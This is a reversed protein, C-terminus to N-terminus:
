LKPLMCTLIKLRLYEEDTLGYARRQIVRIKNNLGEVFGLPVDTLQLHAVIGDWHAEVMAAFKQYPGLRQWKLSEKWNDFFKRAWAESRYEWFKDFSEKLLYAKSLRRNAELLTKLSARGKANLNEKNRLLVYKQGKVFKKNAGTLRKVEQKRVEDLAECLKQVVHFKDFLITAEPASEKASSIFARSMDMAILDISLNKKEGNLAFFVDLDKKAKGEGGFWVARRRELDSVVVRYYHGKKTSIEDVVIRRLTPKGAKKLQEEMYEMDLKKVTQWDLHFEEAVDKIPSERCRRGVAIAFRKTYRPNKALWELKERKM